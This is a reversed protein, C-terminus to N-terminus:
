GDFEDLNISKNNEPLLFKYYSIHENINFRFSRDPTRWNPGYNVELLVEPSQPINTQEGYFDESRLPLIASKPISNPRQVYINIYDGECYGTFLDFRLFQDDFHYGIVIVGNNNIARMNEQENVLKLLAEREKLIDEPATYQSIYALDIDDDHSLFIGERIMGLLTGSTIFASIKLNKYLFDNFIQLHKAVAQEKNKHRDSISKAFGHGTFQYDSGFIERVANNILDLTSDKETSNRLIADIQKKCNFQALIIFSLYAKTTEDHDGIKIASTIKDICDDRTINISM